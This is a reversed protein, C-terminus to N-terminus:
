KVTLLAKSNAIHSEVSAQTYSAVAKSIGELGKVLITGAQVVADLNDKNFATLDDFNRLVQQSAKEIQEKTTALNQAYQKQAAEQG